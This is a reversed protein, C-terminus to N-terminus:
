RACSPRTRCHRCLAGEVAAVYLPRHQHGLAILDAGPAPTAALRAQAMFERIRLRLQSATKALAVAQAFDFTCTPPRASDLWATSHQATSHQFLSRALARASLPM